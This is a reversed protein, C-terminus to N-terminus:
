LVHAARRLWECSQFCQRVGVRHPSSPGPGLTLREEDLTGLASYVQEQLRKKAALSGENLEEGPNENTQHLIQSYFPSCLNELM